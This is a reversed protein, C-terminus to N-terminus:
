ARLDTLVYGIGRLTHIELEAGAAALKKRLRHILVEIANTGVEEDFGYLSSEFHAKSVVSGTRRLLLELAALEKRAMEIDCGAIRVRRHVTDFEVNREVLHVGLAQGPRRMLARLRALLEDMEFPKRLYDDAGGDLADILAETSDRATLVLIPATPRGAGRKYLLTMGDRDPLGLDLIVADYDTTALAADAEEGTRVIDVVYGHSRLADGIAAGLRRSDEVLLIRVAAESVLSWIHRGTVLCM